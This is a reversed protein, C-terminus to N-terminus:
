DFKIRPDAVTYLVDVLTNVVVFTFALVLICGQILTVHNLPFLPLPKGFNVKISMEESM